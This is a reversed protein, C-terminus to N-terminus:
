LLFPQTVINQRSLHLNCVLDFILCSGQLLSSCLVPHIQAELQNVLVRSSTGQPLTLQLFDVLYCFGRLRSAFQQHLFLFIVVLFKVLCPRIYPVMLMDRALHAIVFALLYVVMFKILAWFCHAIVMTKVDLPGYVSPQFYQERSLNFPFQESILNVFFGLVYRAGLFFFFFFLSFFIKM